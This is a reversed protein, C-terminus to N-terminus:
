ASIKGKSFAQRAKSIVKRIGWWFFFMGVAFTLVIGLVKVINGINLVSTVNSFANNMESIAQAAIDTEAAFAAPLAMCGFMLVVMFCCLVKKLKTRKM